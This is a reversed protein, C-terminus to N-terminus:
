NTPWTAALSQAVPQVARSRDRTDSPHLNKEAGEHGCQDQPESLRRYFSHRPKGRPYLRGLTPSAVRGGVLATATFNHVTAGVGGM